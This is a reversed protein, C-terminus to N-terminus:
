ATEKDRIEEDYRVVRLRGEVQFGCAKLFSDMMAIVTEIEVTDATLEVTWTDDGHGDLFQHRFVYKSEMMM